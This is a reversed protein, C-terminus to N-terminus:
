FMLQKLTLQDVNWVGPPVWNVFSILVVIKGCNVRFLLESMKEGSINM